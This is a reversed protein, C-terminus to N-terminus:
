PCCRWADTFLGPTGFNGSKLLLALRPGSAPVMWPLGPGAAPGVHLTTLGLRQVVAGSTEGGAVLLRRVELTEVARAAIEATATELLSSSRATGLRSRHEALRDPTASSSVLVPGGGQDFVRELTSLVTGLTGTWDADLDIPSLEIRPGPFAAVQERTAESCSGSLILRRGGPVEPVSRRPTAVGTNRVRALAAALGAAGTVLLRAGRTEQRLLATAATGLDADTLADLLLHATGDARAADIAADLRDPGDAVVQWPILGVPGTTQRGLVAVLDPDRMPTLPHDRMPSGSLLRGGVFLHGQYVTRGVRPTAPTGVSLLTSEPPVRALADAVPGINGDDTSDFTSCYKQYLTTCGSDTLRRAAALSQAVAEDRPATRSKLAVVVCDCGPPPEAPVGVTVVASAGQESVADAVDCAGTFDDAIIGLWPRSM